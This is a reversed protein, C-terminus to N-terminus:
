SAFQLVTDPQTEQGSAPILYRNEIDGGSGNQEVYQWTTGNLYKYYYLNGVKLTVNGEYKGTEGNKTLKIADELKWDVMSGILYVDGTTVDPVEVVFKISIEEGNPNYVKAWKAVTDEKITTSAEPTLQRNLIEGGDADKEVFDTHPGSVYKYEYLKGVELPLTIEFVESTNNYTLEIPNNFNWNNMTGVIYAKPTAAPATVQFKVNVVAEPDFLNKWKAVTDTITTAETVTLQRNEIDNGMADVEVYMWLPGCIYKYEIVSNVGFPFTGEFKETENNYTLKAEEYIGWGMFDASIYIENTGAPATISFTLDVELGGLSGFSNVTDNKTEAKTVTHERDPGEEWAKKNTGYVLVYKYKVQYNEPISKVISYTNGVGKIMKYDDTFNNWQHTPETPPNAHILGPFVGILYVQSDAPLDEPVTVNFTIDFKQLPEQWGTVTDNLTKNEVAHHHRNGDYTEQNTEWYYDINDVTYVYKYSITYGTAPYIPMTKVLTYLNGDGKTMKYDDTFNNWQHTPATPPDAPELGPFVGIVYVKADGPIGASLTANFTITVEEPVNWNTVTDNLTTTATVTHERLPLLNESTMEEIREGNHVYSYRYRMHFNKDAIISVTYKNDAGKTMKYTDTYNNWYYATPDDPDVPHPKLGPFEGIVYLLAGEPINASASFTIVIPFEWGTVSDDISITATAIHNRNTERTEWIKSNDALVLVYKYKMEFNTGYEAPVVIDLKYTDDAQKVMKYTDTFNNWQHTPETPPEVFTLGPFVGIMYISAGEPIAEPVTLNFTVTIDEAPYNWGTVSNDVSATAAAIHTRNTERTEWIKSNDALVLVYKYKMEFNTGYEAAVVVDLKYKGDLQKAMKYTDTFNNWQHTPETPPEAFTLGPFVGIMYISAGEPIAEPVTLNFTVTIDEAPLIWTTVEENVDGSAAAVYHRNHDETERDAEWIYTEGGDTTYVYKYKLEYNTGYEAAVVIDLKYTGDAQKAMKYTDTYNNWQHTPETPPDVPELGPFVGIMYIVADEPTTEPVTLIFNLTIDEAPYNWGTVSNDVSATAAAIHTRNTERTEWVKSEDALVLMYKYKMEYTTGYEAAVVIDLKYTDDAQKVMKYTDTFNNWQHTPETPPEAFTLGPFVGIMYISAGEPIAEPVTLNFTVTIDEPEVPFNWGTVSNDVSATAAAIHTRDNERTEWVKSEDALVLMYKYKMEYTTGYEAAVVIDLKYTGDAQKVMKYTDTFNNWQHTPETPPEAFTLGPFVGIMYISAGEPIAEPVTLNFTVTIDEPEEPVTWKAVTDEVTAAVTVTYLRNDVNGGDAKLEVGAWPLGLSYKYHYAQGVNLTLEKEYLTDSVKNLKVPNNEWNTMTGALYVGSDAPTDAPVTVQFKILVTTPPSTPELGKWRYVTNEVLSLDALVTLKRNDLLDSGDPQQEVGDWPLGLTYKYSYEEDINLTLEKEYLTNSVKTMKEPSTAWNTMTGAIYISADSPTEAPVTVQFKVLRTETGPVEIGKWRAVTDEQLLHDAAIVLTRNEVKTGNAQIEEKEWNFDLVYKYEFNTGVPLSVKVEHINDDNVTLTYAGEAQWGNQNHMMVVSGVTEQPVNVKFTVEVTDEPDGPAVGEWRLVTDTVKTTEETVELKRNPRYGGEANAEANTWPIGMTYKYEYTTGSNLEFTATFKNDGASTMKVANDKWNTMEGAIYVDGTTEVPVTVEFIVTVPVVPVPVIWETVEDQQTSTESVLYHRNNDDTDRDKEWHKIDNLVYVYKYKLEYNVPATIDLRYKGDNGKTMKYEDTFNNWQHTPLTPEVGEGPWELGPFVGIMYVSANAPVEDTATLVFSITVDEPTVTGGGWLAVTDNIIAMGKAVTVTRAQIDQGEADKEVNDSSKGNVYKYKLEFGIEISKEGVYKGQDNVTLKIGEEYNFNNLNTVVYVDGFTGVPVDVVFKVLVETDPDVVEAATVTVAVTDQLSGHQVTITATGEAVATIVLQDNQIVATAVAQNSTTIKLNPDTAEINTLIIEVNKTKGAEISVSNIEISLAQVPEVPQPTVNVVITALVEGKYLVSLTASGESLTNVEVFGDIIRVTFVDSDSSEVKLDASDFSVGKLNLPVNQKFGEKITISEQDFSIEVKKKCASLGVFLSLTILLMLLFNKINKM